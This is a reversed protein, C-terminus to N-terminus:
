VNYDSVKKYAYIALVAFAIIIYIIANSGTGADPLTETTNNTTTNNTYTSSNNSSTTTTITTTTNNETTNEEDDTENTTTNNSDDDTSTNATITVVNTDNAAFSSVNCFAFILIMILLSVLVKKM